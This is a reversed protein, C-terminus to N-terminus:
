SRRRSGDGVRKRADAEIQSQSRRFSNADPTTINYNFNITSGADRSSSGGAAGVLPLNLSSPGFAGGEAFRRSGMDVVLDGTGDRGLPLDVRRGDQVAGVLFRGGAMRGPMIAEPGAEGAIGMPFAVQSRIVDGFRGRLGGFAGGSAFAM